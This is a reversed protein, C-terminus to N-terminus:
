KRLYVIAVTVIWAVYSKIKIVLRKRYIYPEFLRVGKFIQM